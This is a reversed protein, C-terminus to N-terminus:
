LSHQQFFSWILANADTETSTPGVIEVYSECWPRASDCAEGSGPWSHGGGEVTCLVPAEDGACGSRALCTTDPTTRWIESGEGCGSLESWYDWQEVAGSCPFNPDGDIALGFGEELVQAWCGGCVEGGEYLACGDETGHLLLVPVPRSPECWTPVGPCGVPAVAAFRDPLACALGASMLGGNSIGTAYVRAADIAHREELRDLLQDFFAVDDVGEVAAQGCCFGGNWTGVHQGMKREGIGDPYVTIFGWEDALDDLGYAEQASEGSVGGGHLVFVLPLPIQGDYQPPFHMRYTRVRGDATRLRRVGEWACGTSLLAVLALASGRM